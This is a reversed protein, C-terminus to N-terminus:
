LATLGRLKFFVRPFKNLWTIIKRLENEKLVRKSKGKSVNQVCTFVDECKELKRMFEVM